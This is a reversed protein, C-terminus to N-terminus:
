EAAELPPIEEGEGPPVIRFVEGTGDVSPTQSTLVYLEDAQDRGFALVTRNLTGDESGAVQLEEMPFEADETVPVDFGEAEGQEPLDAVFLRGNPREFGASWDGFVYRGDLDSLEGGRYVYGGTVSIGVVQDGIQHPYELVPDLLASGDYPASDPEETPCDTIAQPDSPSETSFCHFSEFVNWGYNGGAEVRDIEEWLNQGVDAVLLDGEGDSGSDSGGWAWETEEEEEGASVDFSFRWPNRFGYAYIEDMGETGVFPNDEPVGYPRDEGETDVDIRLISGLLNDTVDQGNGGGNADYWDEVHGLGTDDAGGGDGVSVYLYDDPGFAIDGGNHNFQPEPITVLRRESEPDGQLADDESAQFEALVFLHDYDEPLAEGGEPWGSYRVYFLGNEQYDPHFALGLLGREDFGDNDMVIRPSIDLFEEVGDDTVHYIEGTQDVVFREEADDVTVTEMGVPQSIPDGAIKQLGVEQGQPVLPEAADQAPEDGAEGVTISGRMSSPHVECVYTALEETVSVSVTQEADQEDVIETQLLANGDADLFAINHPLGDVNIWTLEYTEGAVLQLTPNTAGAIAEPERGEWGETIGGLVITEAPDIPEGGAEGDDEGDDDEQGSAAPVGGLAGLATAAVTGQLLRRRTPRYPEIADTRGSDDAPIREGM